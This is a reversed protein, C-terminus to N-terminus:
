QRGAIAAALLTRRNELIFGAPLACLLRCPNSSCPHLFYKRADAGRDAAIFIDM